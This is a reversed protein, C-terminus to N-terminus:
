RFSLDGVAIMTGDTEGDVTVRPNSKETVGALETSAQENGAAGFPLFKGDPLTLGFASTSSDVPCAAQPTQQKCSADALIGGWSGPEGAAM